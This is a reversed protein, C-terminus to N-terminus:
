NLNISAGTNRILILTAFGPHKDRIGSGFKKLGPGTDWNKGDRIRM